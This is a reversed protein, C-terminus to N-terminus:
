GGFKRKFRSKTHKDIVNVVRFALAQLGQVGKIHYRTSLKVLIFVCLNKLVLSIDALWSKRM